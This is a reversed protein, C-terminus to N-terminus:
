NADSCSTKCLLLLSTQILVFDVRAESGDLPWTVSCVVTSHDMRLLRTSRYDLAVVCRKGYFVLNFHEELSCLGSYHYIEIFSRKGVVHM